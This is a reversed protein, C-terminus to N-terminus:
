RRGVWSEREPPPYCIFLALHPHAAAASAGDAQQVDCFPPPLEGDSLVSHGNHTDGVAVDTPVVPVGHQRLLMANYGLGAGVEVVGNPSFERVADLSKTDLVAWSFLRRLPAVQLAAYLVSLPSARGGSLVALEASRRRLLEGLLEKM